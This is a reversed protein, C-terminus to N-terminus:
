KIFEGFEDVLIVINAPIRADSLAEDFTKYYIAAPANSDYFSAEAKCYNPCYCSTQDLKLVESPVLVLVKRGTAFFYHALIAL